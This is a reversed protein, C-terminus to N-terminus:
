FTSQPAFPRLVHLCHENIGQVQVSGDNCKIAILLQIVFIYPPLMLLRISQACKGPQEMNTEIQTWGGM